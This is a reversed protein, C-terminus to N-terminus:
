HYEGGVPVAIVNEDKSDMPPFYLNNGTSNFDANQIKINKNVVVYTTNLEEDKCLYRLISPAEGLRKDVFFYVVFYDEPYIVYTKSASLLFREDTLNFGNKRFSNVSRITNAASKAIGGGLAFSAAGAAINLVTMAKSSKERLVALVDDYGSYDLGLDVSYGPISFLRDTHNEFYIEYVDFKNLITKNLPPNIVKQLSYDLGDIKQVVAFCSGQFFFYFLVQIIIYFFKKSM